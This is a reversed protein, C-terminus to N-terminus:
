IIVSVKKVESKKMMDKLTDTESQAAKLKLELSAVEDRLYRESCVMKNLSQEM